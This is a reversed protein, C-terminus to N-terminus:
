PTIRWLTGCGFDPYCDQTDGGTESTGYINGASDVLQVSPYFGDPDGDFSHLVSEVWNGNSFSLKFAVGYDNTGGDQTAGYLNGASDRALGGEPYQGTSGSPFSYLLQFNWTGPQTLEFVTGFNSAGGSGTIGYLNGSPDAILAGPYNGDSGQFSHIITQTWAGNSPSLEYIVGDGGSGGQATGYLNGAADVILNGAPSHGDNAGQFNYIVTETWGNGSPSLKYVIGCGYNPLPPQACVGNGGYSTTGYLNGATDFTVGGSPIDGDTPHGTFAYLATENWPCVFSGCAIASPQLKFVVGCGQGDSVCNGGLDGGGGTVGYINGDRGFAPAGPGSGNTLPPVFQHLPTVIWGGLEVARFVLGRNSSGGAGVTGYLRGGRDMLLGDPEDGDPGTFTHLIRFTQAQAAMASVIGALVIARILGTVMNDFLPAANQRLNKM